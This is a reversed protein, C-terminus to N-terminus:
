YINKNKSWEALDASKLNLKVDLQAWKSGLAQKQDGSCGPPLIHTPTLDACNNQM